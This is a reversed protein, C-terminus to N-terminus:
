TQLKILVIHTVKGRFEFAIVGVGKFCFAGIATCNEIKGRTGIVQFTLIASRFVFDKRSFSRDFFKIKFLM